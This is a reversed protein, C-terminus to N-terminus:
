NVSCSSCGSAGNSIVPLSRSRATALIERIESNELRAVSRKLDEHAAGGECYECDGHPPAPFGMLEARLHAVECLFEVPKEADGNELEGNAPCMGCVAKIQCANCKTMMTIKKSRVTHLFDEWGERFSGNRLDYADFHSLVCISMKGDPDIAFSSIGGGCHYVEDSHEPPQSPGNFQQAFRQWEAVRKPDQLDLAVIEESTLRVALPSQSCDIRPNMMADFKFELGLDEAFQKM